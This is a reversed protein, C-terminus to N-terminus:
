VYSTIISMKGILQIYNVNATVIFHDGKKVSNGNVQGYGDIVSMLKFRDNEHNFSSNVDWKEVTFYDNKVYRTISTDGLDFFKTRLVPNVHPIRTVQIAEEIQLDRKEGHEDLRDYDYLRYNIDSTQQIELLMIGKGISHITGAPVFIFDGKKVNKKILLDKWQNESVMNALEDKSKAQHGYIIYADDKADLIYWCEAKGEDETHRKAYKDDPHVQISLDDNADIIKVMLPFKKSQYYNFLKRETRFLTSITMGMFKGNKVRCDGNLHASIAWCEGINKPPLDYGFETRLNQGGWLREKFIPEIFLIDNM